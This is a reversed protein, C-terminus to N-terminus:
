RKRPIRAAPLERPGAVALFASAPRSTGPEPEDLTILAWPYRTAVPAPPL